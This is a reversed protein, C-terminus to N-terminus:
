KSYVTTENAYIAINCIVDPFDNIYLLLLSPGFTSNLFMSTQTNKLRIEM